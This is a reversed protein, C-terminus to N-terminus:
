AHSQKESKQTPTLAHRDGKESSVITIHKQIMHLAHTASVQDFATGNIILEFSRTDPTINFILADTKKTFVLADQKWQALNHMTHDVWTTDYHANWSTNIGKIIGDASMWIMTEPKCATSTFVIDLLEQNVHAHLSLSTSLMTTLSDGTEIVCRVTKNNNVAILSSRILTEVWDTNDRQAPVYNKLTIFNKQLTEQHLVILAVLGVPASVLLFLAVTPLPMYYACATVSAYTYVYPILNKQHDQKLWRSFRYVVCSFFIIELADRATLLQIIRTFYVDIPVM